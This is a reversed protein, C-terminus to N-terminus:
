TGGLGMAAEISDARGRELVQGRYHAEAVHTSHGAWLAAVAAPTGVSAAYSVWSRRLQQPRITGARRWVKAPYRKLGLVTGGVRPWTSLLKAFAPAIEGEAAGTLPIIRTRGTKAARVTIRGRGLDVDGWQLKLAEGLRMGTLALLLFLRRSSDPLADRFAQLEHPTFANPVQRQGRKIKLAHWLIASDPFVRPRRRDLWHLCARLNSKHVNVTGGTVKQALETFYRDLTPGDLQGCAMKEPVWKRFAELTEVLRKASSAALGERSGPQLERAMARAEVNALYVGIMERLARHYDVLGRQLVEAFAQDDRGRYHKVLAARQEATHAGKKACSIRVDKDTLRDTYRLYFHGRWRVIRPPKTPRSM